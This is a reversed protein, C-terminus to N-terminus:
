IYKINHYKRNIINTNSERIVKVRQLINTYRRILKM